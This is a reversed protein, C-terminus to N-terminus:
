LFLTDDSFTFNIPPTVRELYRSDVYTSLAHFQSLEFKLFLSLFLFLKFFIDLWMCMKLGHGFCRHLKLLIAM